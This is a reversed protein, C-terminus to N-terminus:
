KFHSWVFRSGSGSSDAAAASDPSDVVIVPVWEAPSSRDSNGFSGVRASDLAEIAGVSRSLTFHCDHPNNQKVYDVYLINPFQLKLSM